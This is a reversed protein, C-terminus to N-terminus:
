RASSLGVSLGEAGVVGGGGVLANRVQSPCIPGVTLRSTWLPNYVRLSPPTTSNGMAHKSWTYTVGNTRQVMSASSLAPFLLDAM